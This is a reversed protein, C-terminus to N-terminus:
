KNLQNKKIKKSKPTVGYDPNYFALAVKTGKFLNAIDSKIIQGSFSLFPNFLWYRTYGKSADVIEFKGYVGLDFLKKLVTNVKNISVGLVEVLTSLTTNDNLPELSNTNAKAMIALRLAAAFEINTLENRLYNWSTTYHKKFFADPEFIISDEPLNNLKIPNVKLEGTELNIKAVRENHNLGVEVSYDYKKKM